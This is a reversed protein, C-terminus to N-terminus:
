TLMWHLLLVITWHVLTLVFLPRSRCHLEISMEYNPARFIHASFWRTLSRRNHITWRTLNASANQESLLLLRNRFQPVHLHSGPNCTNLLLFLRWITWMCSLAGVLLAFSRILYLSLFPFELSNFLDWSHLLFMKCMFMFCNLCAGFLYAFIHTTQCQQEYQM